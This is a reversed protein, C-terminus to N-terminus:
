FAIDIDKYICLYIYLYLFITYIIHMSFICFLNTKSNIQIRHYNFNSKNLINLVKLDRVHKKTRPHTIYQYIIIIEKLHTYYM